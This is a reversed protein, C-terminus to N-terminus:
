KTGLENRKDRETTLIEQIEDIEKLRYIYIYIYTYIYIHGNMIMFKM